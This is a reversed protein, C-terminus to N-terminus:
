RLTSHQAVGECARPSVAQVLRSVLWDPETKSRELNIPYLSAKILTADRQVKFVVRKLYQCSQQFARIIEDCSFFELLPNLPITRIHTKLISEIRGYAFQPRSQLSLRRAM